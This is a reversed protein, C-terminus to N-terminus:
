LHVYMSKKDDDRESQLFHVCPSINWVFVNRGHHYCKECLIEMIAGSILKNDSWNHERYM